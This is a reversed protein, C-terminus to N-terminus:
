HKQDEYDFMELMFSRNEETDPLSIGSIGNHLFVRNEVVGCVLWTAKNEKLVKM